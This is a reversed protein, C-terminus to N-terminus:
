KLYNNFVDMKPSSIIVCDRIRNKAYYFDYLDGNLYEVYFLFIENGDSNKV